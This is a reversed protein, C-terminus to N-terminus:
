GDIFENIRKRQQSGGEDRSFPNVLMFQTGHCITQLFPLQTRENRYVCAVGGMLLLHVSVGADWTLGVGLLDM